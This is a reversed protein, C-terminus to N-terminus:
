EKSVMLTVRYESDKIEGSSNVPYPLVGAVRILFGEYVVRDKIGEFEMGPALGNNDTFTQLDMNVPSGNDMQVSLSLSVPGSAACELESPCRGDGTVGILRISLGTDSISATQGPALAFETDQEASVTPLTAPQCATLLFLAILLALATTRNM